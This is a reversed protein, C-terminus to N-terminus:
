GFLGSNSCEENLDNRTYTKIEGYHSEIYETMGKSWEMEAEHEIKYLENEEDSIVNDVFSNCHMVDKFEEVINNRKPPNYKVKKVKQTFTDNTGWDEIDQTVQIGFPNSSKPKDKVKTEPAVEIVEEKPEIVSNKKSNTKNASAVLIEQRKDKDNVIKYGEEELQNKRLALAYKLKGNVFDILEVGFYMEAGECESVIVYNNTDMRKKNDSVIYGVTGYAIMELDVLNNLCKTITKNNLGTEKEITEYSPYCVYSVKNFHSKLCCYVNLTNLKEQVKVDANLIKEVEKYYLHFYREEVSEIASVDIVIEKDISEITILKLEHLTNLLAKISAKSKKNVEYGCQTILYDLSGIYKNFRTSNIYLAYLVIILRNDFGIKKNIHEENDDKTFFIKNDLKVYLEEKKM